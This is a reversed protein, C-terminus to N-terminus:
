PKVIDNIDEDILIKIIKRLANDASEIDLGRHILEKCANKFFIPDIHMMVSKYAPRRIHAIITTDNIMNNIEDITKDNDIESLHIKFTYIYCTPENEDCKPLQETANLMNSEHARASLKANIMTTNIRKIEEDPDLTSKTRLYIFQM